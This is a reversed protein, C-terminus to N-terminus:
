PSSGVITIPPESNIGKEAVHLMSVGYFPSLISGRIAIVTDTPLFAGRAHFTCVFSGLWLKAEYNLLM